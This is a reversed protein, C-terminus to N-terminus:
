LDKLDKSLVIIGYYSLEKKVIAGKYGLMYALLIWAEELYGKGCAEM